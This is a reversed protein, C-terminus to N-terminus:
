RNAIIQDPPLSNEWNARGRSRRERRSGIPPVSALTKAASAGYVQTWGSSPFWKAQYGGSLIEGAASCHGMHDFSKAEIGGFWSPYVFDSVLVGNIEYGYIDSEVPDAAEFALLSIINGNNDEESVTMSITADGLIEVLEHSGTVSVSSGYQHDTAAFVKGMPKGAATVDHYGLAGAQDSNDLFIMQWNDVVSAIDAKPVFKLDAVMGWIPGFDRTLQIQYAAIYSEVEADSVATSENIFAIM